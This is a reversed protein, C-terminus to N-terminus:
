ATPSLAHGDVGAPRGRGGPRLPRRLAADHSRHRQGPRRCRPMVASVIGPWDGGHVSLLYPAGDGAGAEEVPVERVAVDLAGGATLPALAAEVEAAAADASAVLVMSSTGACCTM